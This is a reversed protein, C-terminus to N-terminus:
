IVTNRQRVRRNTIESVYAYLLDSNVRYFSAIDGVTAHGRNWDEIADKMSGDIGYKEIVQSALM